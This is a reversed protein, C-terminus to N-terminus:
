RGPRPRKGGSNGIVAVGFPLPIVAAIGKMKRVNDTNLVTAKAGEAPAELVCAYVM